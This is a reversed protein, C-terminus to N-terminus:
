RATSGTCRPCSPSLAPRSSSPLPKWGRSGECGSASGSSARRSFPDQGPNGLPGRRCGLPARASTDKSTHEWHLALLDAESNGGHHQFNLIPCCYQQPLDHLLCHTNKVPIPIQAGTSLCTGQCHSIRSAWTKVQFNTVDYGFALLLVAIHLKAFFLFPM